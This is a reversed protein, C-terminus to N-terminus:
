QNGGNKVGRFSFVVLMFVATYMCGAFIALTELESMTSGKNFSCRSSVFCCSDLVGKRNRYGEISM